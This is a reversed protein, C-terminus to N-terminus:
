GLLPVPSRAAHNRSLSPFRSPIPCGTRDQLNLKAMQQSAILLGMASMPKADAKPPQQQCAFTRPWSTLIEMTLDHLHWIIMLCSSAVGRISVVAHTAGFATIQPLTLIPGLQRTMNPACTIASPPDILMPQSHMMM